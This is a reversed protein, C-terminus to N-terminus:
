CLARFTRIWSMELSIVFFFITNYYTPYFFGRMIMFQPFKPAESMSSINIASIAASGNESPKLLSCMCFCKKFTELKPCEPLSSYQNPCKLLLSIHAPMHGGGQICVRTRRGQNFTMLFLFTRESKREGDEGQRGAGYM